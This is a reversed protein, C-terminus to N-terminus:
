SVQKPEMGLSSATHLFIDPNPKSDKFEEGSVVVDFTRELECDTIVRNIRDRDSYSSLAISIGQNKLNDILTRVGNFFSKKLIFNRQSFSVTSSM